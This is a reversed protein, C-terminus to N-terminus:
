IHMVITDYKGFVEILEVKKSSNVTSINGFNERIFYMSALRM